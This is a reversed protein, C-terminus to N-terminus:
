IFCKSCEKISFSTCKCLYKEEDCVNIAVSLPILIEPKIFGCLSPSVIKTSYSLEVETRINMTKMCDYLNSINLPTQPGYPIILKILLILWIYYHFTANLKSNFIVKIILIVVVIASSIISSFVIVKFINLLDM